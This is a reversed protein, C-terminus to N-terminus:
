EGHSTITCGYPITEAPDPLRGARLADVAERVFQRTPVRQKFTVDDFAGSYRLRGDKDCIFIHPTIKAGFTGVVPTGAALLVPSLGRQRAVYRVDVDKENACAALTLLVVEAGWHKLCLLLELDARKAWPCEASWFNLVLIHGRYDAPHHLRGTLDPLAFDPVPQNLDMGSNYLAPM